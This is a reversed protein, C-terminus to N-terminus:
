PRTGDLEERREYDTHDREPYFESWESWPGQRDLSDVGAVRLRTRTIVPITFRHKNRTTYDTQGHDWQCVYHHVPSGTTPPTWSYVVEVSDQPADSQNGSRGTSDTEAPVLDGLRSWGDQRLISCGTTTM